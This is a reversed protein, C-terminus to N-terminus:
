SALDLQHGCLRPLPVQPKIYGYSYTFGDSFLLKETMKRPKGLEPGDTQSPPQAGGSVSYHLSPLQVTLAHWLVGGMEQSDLSPLRSRSGELGLDFDPIYFGFFCITCLFL